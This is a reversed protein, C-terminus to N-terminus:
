RRGLSSRLIDMSHRYITLARNHERQVEAASVMELEVSVSNGNPSPESAALRVEPAISGSSSTSLHGPRSVRLDTASGERVHESFSAITQAQFGPTDANAVNRAIVAQRAGAHRAMSISQQFVELHGFMPSEGEAKEVM